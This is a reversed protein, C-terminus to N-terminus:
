CLFSDINIDEHSVKTLNPNKKGTVLIYYTSNLKLLLMNDLICVKYEIVTRM